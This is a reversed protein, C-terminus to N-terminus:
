QGEAKAIVDLFAAIHQQDHRCVLPLALKCAALLEPAAEFLHANAETEKGQRM